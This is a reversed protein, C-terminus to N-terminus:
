RGSRRRRSWRGISRRRAHHAADPRGAARDAASRGPDHPQRQELGAGAPRERRAQAERGRATLNAHPDGKATSAPRRNSSGTSSTAWPRSAPRWATCARCSRAPCSAASARSTPWRQEEARGDHRLHQHRHDQGAHGAQHGRRGRGTPTSRASPWRCARPLGVKAAVGGDTRRGRTPRCASSLRTTAARGAGSRARWSSRAAAPRGVRRQVDGQPRGRLHRPFRPRTRSAPSLAPVFDALEVWPVRRSSRRPRGEATCSRRGSGSAVLVDRRVQRWTRPAHKRGRKPHDRGGRRAGHPGEVALRPRGPQGQLKPDMALPLGKADVPMPTSGTTDVGIGVVDARRSAASSRPRPWRGACRASSAGIYDAPNQRALNPDKPDLLIGQDGSPYNFVYTGVERGDAVDVVLARVSNTGYDVGITYAKAM